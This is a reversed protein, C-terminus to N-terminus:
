SPGSTSGRNRGSGDGRAEQFFYEMFFSMQKIMLKIEYMLTHIDISKANGKLRLCGSVFEEMDVEGSRDLDLMDFLYNSDTVDIDLVSFYYRVQESKFAEQLDERSIVGTGEADIEELLDTLMSVYMKKQEKEKELRLDREQSSRQIAGDVFVGTVINLVSFICFFIYLIFLMSFLWGTHGLPNLVDRWSVGGTISAFLTYASNILSGYDALLTDAEANDHNVPDKLFETVGQTFFISFVYLIGILLVMLWFLSRASNMILTVMIRLEALFRLVRMIRVIRAMRFVRIVKGATGSAGGSNDENTTANLIIEIFSMIVLLMDFLNWAIIKSNFFSLKLAGLRLFLELAFMYAFVQEVVELEQPESAKTSRAKVETQVGIFLSNLLIMAAFFYDFVPHMVIKLLRSEGQDQGLLVSSQNGHLIKTKEGRSMSNAKNLRGSPSRSVTGDSAVAKQDAGNGDGAAAKEKEEQRDQRKKAAMERQQRARITEDKKFGESDLGDKDFDKAPEETEDEGFKLKQGRKAQVSTRAMSGTSLRRNSNADGDEVDAGAEGAGPATTAEQPMSAQSDLSNKRAVLHPPIVPASAGQGSKRSARMSQKSWEKLLNYDLGQETAKISKARLRSGFPGGPDGSTARDMLGQQEEKWEELRKELRSLRAAVAQMYGKLPLDELHSSTSGYPEQDSHDERRLHDEGHMPEPMSPLPQIVLEGRQLGQGTVADVEGGITVEKKVPSTCSGSIEAELEERLDCVLNDIEEPSEQLELFELHRDVDTGDETGETIM